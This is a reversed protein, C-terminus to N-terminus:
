NKEELELLSIESESLSDLDQDDEKFKSEEFTDITKKMRKSKQTPKASEQAERKKALAEKQLKTQVLEFASPNRKNSKSTNNKLAPRGKTNKKVEPAQIAIALHTRTAIKHIHEFLILLQAPTEHLLTLVLKKIEADL